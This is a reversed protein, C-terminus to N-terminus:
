TSLYTICLFTEMLALFVLSSLTLSRHLCVSLTVLLYLGACVSLHRLCFRLCLNARLHYVIKKEKKKMIELFAMLYTDRRDRRICFAELIQFALLLMWWKVNFRCEPSVSRFFLLYGKCGHILAKLSLM